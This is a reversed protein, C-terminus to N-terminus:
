LRSDRIADGLIEFDKPSCPKDAHEFHKRSARARLLADMELSEKGSPQLLPWSCTAENWTNPPSSCTRSTLTRALAEPLIVGFAGPETQTPIRTDPTKHLLSLAASSLEASPHCQRWSGLQPRPLPFLNTFTEFFHPEGQDSPCGKTFSRSCFDAMVNTIGEWHAVDQPGRRFFRQRISMWRILRNPTPSEAKSARRNAWSVTPANDSWTFSSIGATDSGEALLLEDLLCEQLFWAVAECDAITLRGEEVQRRLGTPMEMRWVTPQLWRTCPLIVGGMGQASADVSGYFHPLSPGVIETIHTPDKTALQLLSRFIVLAERLESKRGLGVFDRPNKGASAANCPAMFGKICPMATSAWRVRGAVKLFARLQMKSKSLAEDISSIYLDTKEPPLGVTRRPGPSGDLELGLMVKRAEWRADGKNLKKESM